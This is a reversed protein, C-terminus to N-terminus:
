VNSADAYTSVALQVLSALQLYETAWDGPLGEDGPNSTSTSPIFLPWALAHTMGSYANFMFRIHEGLSELEEPDGRTGPNHQAALLLGIVSDVTENLLDGDRVSKGPITEAAARISTATDEDPALWTLHRTHQMAEVHKKYGLANVRAVKAANVKQDAPNQPLLVFLVRCASTLTTRALPASVWPSLNLSKEPPYLTTLSSTAARVALLLQNSIPTAINLTSDLGDLVSNKDVPFQIKHCYQDIARMNNELLAQYDPSDTM